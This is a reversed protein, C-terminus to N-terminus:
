KVFNLSFLLIRVESGRKRAGSLVLTAAQQSRLVSPHAAELVHLPQGPEAGHVPGVEPVSGCGDGDVECGDVVRGVEVVKRIDLYIDTLKHDCLSELLIIYFSHESGIRAAAETSDVCDSPPWTDPELQTKRM